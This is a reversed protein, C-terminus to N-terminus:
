DDHAQEAEVESCSSEQSARCVNCFSFSDIGLQAVIFCLGDSYKAHTDAYTRTQSLNEPKKHLSFALVLCPAGRSLAAATEENISNSNIIRGNKQTIHELAPHLPLSLSPSLPRAVAGSHTGM